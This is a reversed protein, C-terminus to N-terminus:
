VHNAQWDRARRCVQASLRDIVFPEGLSDSRLAGNKRSNDWRM